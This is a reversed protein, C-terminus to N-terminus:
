YSFAKAINLLSNVYTFSHKTIEQQSKLISTWEKENLSLGKKVLAKIDSDFVGAGHYMENLIPVNSMGLQGYSINKFMRCPMYNNDVQWKGGVAPAIRSKRILNIGIEDSVFKPNRLFILKKLLATKLEKIEELNGQHLENDWISGIWYVLHSGRNFVPKMFDTPFVNTGWPQFLTRDKKSFYRGDEVKHGVEKAPNTYVQLRLHKSEEMGESMQDDFNHTCYYVGKKPRLNTASLNAVIVLDGKNVLKNNEIEDDVWIAPVQLKELTSYYGGYIHRFSNLIPSHLGWVITKKFKKTLISRTDAIIKM